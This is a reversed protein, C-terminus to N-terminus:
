IKGNLEYEKEIVAVKQSEWIAKHFQFGIVQREFHILKKRAFEETVNFTEMVFLLAESWTYPLGSELIMFTPVCFHLSFNNAKAEQFAAFSDSMNLQNGSHCLVHNLEHAFDQWQEPESKKKNLIISFLGDKELAWSDSDLFHVWIDLKAAIELMDMQDPRRIGWSLYMKKIKEELNTLVYEMKFDKRRIYTRNKLSFLFGM